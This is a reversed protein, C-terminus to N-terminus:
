SQTVQCAHVSILATTILQSCILPFNGHEHGPRVQLGSLDPHETNPAQAETTQLSWQPDRMTYGGLMLAAM